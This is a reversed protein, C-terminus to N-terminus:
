PKPQRAFSCSRSEPASTLQALWCEVSDKKGPDPNKLYARVEGIAQEVAGRNLLVQALPLRAKPLDTAAQTLIDVAEATNSGEMVLVRGLAYLASSRRPGLNLAHRVAAEAEPFRRLLLLAEGLNVYPEQLDPALEIAKQFRAVAKEYEQLSIYTVGLNNHAEVFAPAIEIAKELHSAASHFDGSQLAKRYRGFEKAAKTPVTLDRVSVLDGPPTMRTRPAPQVRLAALPGKLDEESPQNPYRSTDSRARKGMGQAHLSSASFLLLGWLAPKM